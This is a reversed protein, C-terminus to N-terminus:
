HRYGMDIDIDMHAGVKEDHSGDTLRYVWYSDVTCGGCSYGAAHAQVQNKRDLQKM